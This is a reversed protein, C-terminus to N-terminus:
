IKLILKQGVVEENPFILEFNEDNEKILLTTTTFRIDKKQGTLDLELNYGVYNSDEISLEKEEVWEESYGQSRSSNDVLDAEVERGSFLGILNQMEQYSNNRHMTEGSYSTLKKKLKDSSM